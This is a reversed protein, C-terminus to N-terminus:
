AQHRRSLAAAIETLVREAAAVPDPATRIPRGVVLYDAGQAIADGPAAARRQDDGPVAAWAPRIGPTVVVFDSGLRGKVLRVEQASCVVGACGAEAALEARRLVLAEPTVEAGYGAAYLQDPGVSTLLTVGLLQPGAGASDALRDGPECHVTLFRVGPRAAARRAARSTAPVDHFKLDLFVAAGTREVVADVVRPGAATFLELGIKFMGVQPKLRDVWDLADRESAVDLPFILKARAAARPDAM